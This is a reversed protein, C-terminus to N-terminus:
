FAKAGNPEINFFDRQGAVRMCSRIIFCEFHCMIGKECFGVCWASRFFRVSFLVVLFISEVQDEM